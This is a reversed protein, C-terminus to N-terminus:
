CEGNKKELQNIRARLRENERKLQVNELKIREITKEMGDIKQNLEEIEKHARLLVRETIEDELSKVQADREAQQGRLARIGPIAAILAVIVSSVVTLIATVYQEM